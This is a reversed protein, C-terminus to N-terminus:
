RGCLWRSVEDHNMIDYALLEKGNLIFVIRWQLGIRAEYSNRGLNRLGTGAHRHVDGFSAEVDAIVKEAQAKLDPSLRAATKRIRPTLVVRIM